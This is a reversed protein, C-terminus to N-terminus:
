QAKPVRLRYYTDIPTDGLVGIDRTSVTPDCIASDIFLTKEQLNVVTRASPCHDRVFTYRGYQWQITERIDGSEQVLLPNFGTEFLVHEYSPIPSSAMVIRDYETQKHIFSALITLNVDRENKQIGTMHVAYQHVAFYSWGITSAIMVGVFVVRYKIGVLKWAEEMGIGALMAFVPLLFISRQVNPQFDFTAAAAIPATILWWLTFWRWSKSRMFMRLGVLLFPLVPISLMGVDGVSYRLPKGGDGFLFEYSFYRFYNSLFKQSVVVGKNHLTRAQLVRGPGEDETLSTVHKVIEPDSLLSTQHFRGAGGPVLFILSLSALTIVIWHFLFHRFQGRFFHWATFPFYLIVLPVFVRPSHYFFFSTIFAATGVILMKGNKGERGKVWCWLGFLVLALAPLSESTSRGLILLWPSLVFVTTAGIATIGKPFFSRLLIFFVFISILAAIAGPLRTTWISLGGLWLFPVTLYMLGMPRYDGFSNFYLPLTNGYFDKGTKLISWATNGVRVEDIHIGRPYQDLKYFLLFAALVLIVILGIRHM